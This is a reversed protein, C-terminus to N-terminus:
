HSPSPDPRSVYRRRNEHTTLFVHHCICTHSLHPMVFIVAPFWTSQRQPACFSCTNNKKKMGLPKVTVAREFIAFPVNSKELLAGLM